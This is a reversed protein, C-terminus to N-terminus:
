HASHESTATTRASLALNRPFPAATAGLIVFAVAAALGLMKRWANMDMPQVQQAMDSPIGEIL